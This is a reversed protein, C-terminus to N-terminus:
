TGPQWDEGHKMEKISAEMFRKTLDKMEKLEECHPCGEAYPAHEALLRGQEVIRLGHLQMFTLYAFAESISLHCGEAIGEVKPGWDETWSKVMAEVIHRTDEAHEEPTREDQAQRVVRDVYPNSM